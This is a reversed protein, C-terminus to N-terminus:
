QAPKLQDLVKDWLSLQGDDVNEVKLKQRDKISLGFHSSVDDLQKTAKEYMTQYGSVNTTKNSFVQVWGATGNKTDEDNLRNIQKIMKNRADLSIAANQLHILDLQMLQKTTLFQKGFWYWLKRQDKTLNMEKKPAPLKELIDYLQKEESTTEKKEIGSSNHVVKMKSDKM